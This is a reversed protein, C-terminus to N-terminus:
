VSLKLGSFYCKLVNVCLHHVKQQLTTFYEFEFRWSMTHSKGDCSRGDDTLKYGERCDCLYSGPVNVCIQECNNSNNSQCEDFEVFIFM